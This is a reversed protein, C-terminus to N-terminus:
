AAKRVKWVEESPWRRAWDLMVFPYRTTADDPPREPLDNV